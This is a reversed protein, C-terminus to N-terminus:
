ASRTFRVADPRTSGAEACYLYEGKKPYPRSGFTPECVYNRFFCRFEYNGPSTKVGPVFCRGDFHRAVRIQPILHRHKFPQVYGDVLPPLGEKRPPSVRRVSPDDLVLRGRRVVANWRNKDTLEPPKLRGGHGACQIAAWRTEWCGFVTAGFEDRHGLTLACRGQSMEIRVRSGTWGTMNSQAWLDM